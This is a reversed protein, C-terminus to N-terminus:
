PGKFSKVDNNPWGKLTYLVANIRLLCIYESPMAASSFAENLSNIFSFFTSLRSSELVINFPIM